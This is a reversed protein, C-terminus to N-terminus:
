DSARLGTHTSVTARREARVPTRRPAPLRVDPMGRKLNPDGSEDRAGGAPAGPARRGDTEGGGGARSTLPTFCLRIAHVPGGDFAHRRGPLFGVRRELARESWRDLNVEPDVKAWLTM